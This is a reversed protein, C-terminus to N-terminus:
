DGALRKIEEKVEQICRDPTSAGASIGVKDKGVFWRSELEDSSEIHYCRTYRSAIEALRITNSSNRGGIVIVLDSKRALERVAEQRKQTAQCLTNFVKVERVRCLVEKVLEAFREYLYTTQSILGVRDSRKLDLKDVAESGPIVDVRAGEVEGLIGEIEPHGAHGMIVLRYGEQALQRAYRHAVRVLLCTGDVVEYGRQKIEEKVRPSVGHARILLKKDRGDKPLEELSRMFRMGAAAIRGVEQPNHILEGLCYVEDSDKLLQEALGLTRKVGFCFGASEAVEIEM